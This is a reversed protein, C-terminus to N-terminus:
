PVVRALGEDLFIDDDGTISNRRPKSEIYENLKRVIIKAHTMDFVVAVLIKINFEDDVLFVNASGNIDELKYKIM